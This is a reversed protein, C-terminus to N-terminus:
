KYKKNLYELTKFFKSKWADNNYTGDWSDMKVINEADTIIQLNWPVCLGSTLTHKLPIVHDVEHLVGTEKTLRIAEKYLAIFQNEYRESLKSYNGLKKGRHRMMQFMSKAKLDINELRKSANKIQREKYEKSSKRYFDRNYIKVCSRCYSKLGDKSSKFKDFDSYDKIEKCKSCTKM